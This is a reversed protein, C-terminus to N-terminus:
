PAPTVVAVARSVSGTNGAVDTASYILMYLGATATDVAGTVVINATLDGDVDDTATAGPDTFALGHAIELTAVGALTVVPAVHDTSTMSGGITDVPSTVMILPTVNQKIGQLLDRADKYDPKLVLALNLEKIAWNRDGVIALFQGLLYHPVPSTPNRTISKTYAEIGGKTVDPVGSLALRTYINGLSIFNLYNKPNLETAREAHWISAKTLTDFREKSVTSLSWSKLFEDLEKQYMESLGREFLDSERINLAVEIEKIAEKTQGSQFFAVGRQYHLIARLREAIGMFGYLVIGLTFIILVPFVIARWKSSVRVFIPEPSALAIGAGTLLATIALPVPGPTYLLFTAWGYSALTSILLVLPAKNTNNFRRIARAFDVHTYLMFILWSFAGFIGVTVISTFFLTGALSYDKNWVASRNYTIPKYMNWSESFSRPGSGFLTSKLDKQYVDRVVNMVYSYSPRVEQTNRIKSIGFHTPNLYLFLIALVLLGIVYVPVTRQMHQKGEESGEKWKSSFFFYIRFIFILFAYFAIIKWLLPFDVVLLIYLSLLLMVVTLIRYIGRPRYFELFMSFLLIYFGYFIGLNFWSGMVTSAPNNLFSFIFVDIFELFTVVFFLTLLLLFLTELRKISGFFVAGGIFVAFFSLFFSITDIEYGIGGWSNTYSHNFLLSIASITLIILPIALSITRPLFLDGRMFLVILLVFTTLGLFAFIISKFLDIPIVSAPVALVAFIIFFASFIMAIPRTRNEDQAIAISNQTM